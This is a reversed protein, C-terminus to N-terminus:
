SDGESDTEYETLQSQRKRGVQLREYKDVTDRQSAFTSISHSFIYAVYVSYAVCRTM